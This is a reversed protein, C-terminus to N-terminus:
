KNKRRNTLWEEFTTSSVIGCDAELAKYHIYERYLSNNPDCM